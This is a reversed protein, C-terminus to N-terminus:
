GAILERLVKQKNVLALNEQKLTEIVEKLQANEATLLLIQDEQQEIIKLARIYDKKQQSETLHSFQFENPLGSTATGDQRGRSEKKTKPPKELKQKQRFEAWIAQINYKHKKWDEINSVHHYLDLLTVLGIVGWGCVDGFCDEELRTIAKNEDGGGGDPSEVWSRSKLLRDALSLRRFYQEGTSNRLNVLQAFIQSDTLNEVNLVIEM